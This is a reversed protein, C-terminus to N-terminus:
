GLVLSFVDVDESITKVICGFSERFPDAFERISAIRAIFLHTREQLRVAYIDRILREDPVIGAGDDGARLDAAVHELM